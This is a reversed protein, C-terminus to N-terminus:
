AAQFARQVEAPSRHMQSLLPASPLRQGSEESTQEDWSGCGDERSAMTGPMSGPSRRASAGHGQARVKGPRMEQLCRGTTLSMVVCGTEM